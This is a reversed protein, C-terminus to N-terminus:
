PDRRIALRLISLGLGVSVLALLAVGVLPV